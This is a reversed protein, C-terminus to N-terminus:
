VSFGLVVANSSSYYSYTWTFNGYMVSFYNKYSNSTTYYPSRTWWYSGQVWLGPSGVRDYPIICYSGVSGNGQNVLRNAIYSHKDITDQSVFIYPTSSTSTGNIWIDGDAMQEGTRTPDTSSTFLRRGPQSQDRDEVTVGPFMLRHAASSYYPLTGAQQEPAFYENGISQWGSYVDVISQLYMHCDAYSMESSYNSACSNVRVSKIASRWAVPLSNFVRSETFIDLASGGWVSLSYGSMSFQKYRPLPSKFVFQADATYLNSGTIYQRGHGVYVARVTERPWNVIKKCVDDGLDDYWIKAWHIWGRAYNGYVTGAPENYAAAGFSLQYEMQAVKEGIIYNRSTEWDYLTSTGGTAGSFSYVFIGNSGKIYRLVIINRLGSKGVRQYNQSGWGVRSYSNDITSTDKMFGLMFGINEATDVCSALVAGSNNGLLFEYDIALTFSPSDEGFLKINTEYFSSGDFWRDELILESPVNSYVPDFGQKIDVYDGVSHWDESIGRKSIAYVEVPSMAALEKGADPVPADQWVAYVNTDGRIYGTSKDWGSFLRYVNNLVESTTDTPWVGAYVAEQGYGVDVSYAPNDGLHFYWNVTYTRLSVDYSAYIDTDAYIQVDLGDWGSYTYVYQADSERTPVSSIIGAAVPDPAYGGRDVLTRGLETGDYNRYYVIQQPLVYEPNYVLELDDWKSTYNDIESHRIYGTIEVRGTLMSDSMAYVKNMVDTEYFTWDIGLIRVIQLTNIAAELITRIDLNSYESILTVLNSYSALQLDSLYLLNNLTLSNITAPLHATAIKGNRAFTIGSLSTGEALLTVLNPCGSFNLSGTLNPCNRIDLTELLTNDKISLTTIFPNSYGSVNSGIILTKLRKAASFDNAWIYCASLDNIAQINEACHVLIVTGDMVTMSTTFTYEVGAKARVSQPSSNGYAVWLYMDSYPTVRVTYDPRVAATQPTNCRFSIARTDACQNTGFYKTGIYVEQEREFQRRQYRKRGNMMNELFDSNPSIGAVPNGDYYPRLYKREIDLRWLEEPFQNQWADFENILSTASWCNMSERSSYMARLQAGMLQRVRRWLVSDAANFIYGSSPDGDTNYDVDERGSTMKLEGNNDIGLATDNDYDWLDYRYGSNIAAATNDITYYEADDGLELAEAETIYVKGWHWFTNKARSDTMTYRETFLYWYLLSESVFWDGFHSVFDTDSSTVVFEYMNRFVQKSAEQQLETMEDTITEGDKTGMDYRFEFSGDWDNYLAQKKLNNANNWQASTVPYVIYSPVALTENLVAEEPNYTIARNANYYVGTDFYSNPLTNDSIEVVHEAMDEPDNVRTNDTKKSDGINGIAYFHWDTDSFERHTSVDPDTERVFIVCNVFEMSNKVKPDKKQRPTQYPLFDNYRKQLLANNANESSAINVKINFWTNPVSTRTLSVAGTGDTYRTGDGLTLTTIYTPDFPEKKPPLIAKEGTFGFIIDINRGALGYRNSTTGQGAHYGNTYTWNDLARDGNRHICEVNTFKVYDSKDNTFHPCSIKIIKLDPCADAVSEPTLRNNEDYIQNREYRSIMTESDRADAIFNTLINNDTLAASYAKMRYIHVDCDDSGITIPVPSLQYLRFGDDNPYLMPRSAVGDEYTMVFSTANSDETDIALINYEFEIVDEESYPQELTDSSAHVYGNHVRMELGAADNANGTLCSLFLADKDRVNTTKFIVKFEAGVTKPNTGFLNYSIYARTGSKVCFYQNGDDDVQYGGNNWDFNNSVTMQVNQNNEDHWLRNASTNTLGTPNFDFALNATVPQIDYGLETIEMRVQVTVNRCTISLTHTSVVDSKYLWTNYPNTLHQESVLTGDVRLEVDPSAAHPDFVVYPISTTNYQKAQVYGYYDYRYICGIVPDESQSDYWIIDKFIHDTEIPQSNVTATIWCELLHAGHTQPSISYSQPIGSSTTVVSELDRGDLKFHVTKATNGGYPTYTFNVTSGSAYAIRDSFTSEIRVDVVQVTWNRTVVSGNDDTVVLTFKQAGVSCYGTADITNYTTADGDVYQICPGTEVVTSGMKLVYSCDVTEGGTDVSNCTFQILVTDTPTVVVPTQTVRGVTLTSGGGTGGGGGGTEPLQFRSVEVGEGEGVAENLVFYYKDESQELEATYTKQQNTLTSIADANTQINRNAQAIAADTTTKDDSHTQRIGALATDIESKSYADAGVAYFHAEVTDGNDEYEDMWRYHLYIDPDETAVYYDTFADGLPNGSGDEPLEDVVAVMAGGVMKWANDIVRYLLAGSGQKLVYNANADASGVTPLSNVVKTNGNIEGTMTTHLATLTDNVLKASPYQTDTPSSFATVKNAANEKLALATDVETKTYADAGVAFFAGEEGVTEPDSWRYHIYIGDSNPVYYDTFEDGSQPLEDDVYVKSGGVLRWAGNVKKYLLGGDGSKLIYNVTEVADALAPLSDVVITKIAEISDKVLKESPYNTDTTTGSWSTVKNASAEKAALATNIGGITTDMESKSYADVGVGYFHAPTSYTAEAWRYHLYRGTAGDPIYYETIVNGTAPLESLVAINAGGILKWADDIVKYMLNGDASKLIYNRSPVANAVTPLSNVVYTGNDAIDDSLDDLSDKVLKETPYRTNNTTGSWSSVKNATDEKATLATSVAKETPYSTNSASGPTVNVSTVKNAVNEKADLSAKVLKESPYKTDSPTGSWGATNTVKNVVDEKGSVDTNIGSVLTAVAKETPYKADSASSPSSAITTTKNSVDEKSSLATSVAKESPYSTDSASNPSSHVTTVKNTTVESNPDHVDYTAGNVRFHEVLGNPM